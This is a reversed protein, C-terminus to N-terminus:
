AKKMRIHPIGDELYEEGYSTFGLDTYFKILYTQASLEITGNSFRKSIEKLSAEMILKGYGYKREEKAVVVRGISPNDFYDGPKFIRTYAVVKGDKKGFVHLAKQDKDDLDQYICNQEVVFVESRLRMIEYLEANSLEDFIKTYVKM